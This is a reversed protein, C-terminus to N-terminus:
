LHSSQPSLGPRNGIQNSAGAAYPLPEHRFRDTDAATRERVRDVRLDTTTSESNDVYPLYNASAASRSKDKHESSASVVSHRRVKGESYAGVASSRRDNNESYASVDSSKDM